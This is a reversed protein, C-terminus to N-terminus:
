VARRPPRPCATVRHRGLMGPWSYRGSGRDPCTIGRGLPADAAFDILEIRERRALRRVFGKCQVFVPREDPKIAVLALPKQSGASQIVFDSWRGLPARSCPEFARARSYASV